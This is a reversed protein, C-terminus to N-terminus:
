KIKVVAKVLDTKNHVAEDYADQIHELDFEHTVISKVNIGKKRITELVSLGDLKPIILDMILVDFDHAREEIIKVAEVGDNASLVVEIDGCDSFYKKVDNVANSSDDVIFVRIKNM